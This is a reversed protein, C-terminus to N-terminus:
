SYNPIQIWLVEAALASRIKRAKPVVSTTGQCRGGRFFTAAVKSRQRPKRNANRLRSTRAAKSESDLRARRSKQLLTRPRGLKRRRALFRYQRNSINGSRKRPSRTRRRRRRSYRSHTGLRFRKLSPFRRNSRPHHSRPTRGLHRSRLAKRNTGAM